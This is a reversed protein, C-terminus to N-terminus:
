KAQPALLAPEIGAPDKPAQLKIPLLVETVKPAQNEGMLLKM